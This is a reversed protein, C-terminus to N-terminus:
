AGHGDHTKSSPRAKREEGVLRALDSIVPAEFLVRPALRVGLDAHIRSLMQIALLSDGGLDFFSDEGDVEEIALVEAWIRALVREEETRPPRPEANQSGAALEPLRGRDLKGNSTLPLRELTVIAVPVMYRPLWGRLWGMLEDTREAARWVVYGVLGRGGVPEVAAEGVAAHGRMVGEVEGLEVRHGRIKVQGDRRGEFELQGNRRWRVLDGSRYMRSGAEGWPNPVFREATEAPRGWYGRAVQDGAICLEGTVGEGVLELESDVVYVRTSPVPRGIPVAGEGLEDPQIGYVVCGVVTETPGYENFVELGDAAWGEVSRWWLQDGGVVLAAVRARLEEVDVQRALIELHAPTMKLLSRRPGAVLTEALGELGRDEPVFEVPEGSALPVLLSTVTLDFGVSTHVVSGGGVGRGYWRRAWRVYTALGRRTVAVGKPLGTSGSTYMVYALSDPHAEPPPGWAGGPGEDVEVEALGGGAVGHLRPHGVVVVDM